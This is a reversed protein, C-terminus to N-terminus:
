LGKKEAYGRIIAVNQIWTNITDVALGILIVSAIESLIPSLNSLLLVTLAASTTLTMTMGTKFAGKVREPIPISQNKTVRSTLLIDTDVSYGVLMLLAAFSPLTLNINLIQMIALTEVIDFVASMIVAISPAYARFMIFVVISMLIFSAILGVQVQQFFSAGLAAGVSRISYKETSIGLKNLEALVKNTDADASLELSVEYGSIGRVEKIDIEPFTASLSSKLSKTDVPSQLNVSVVTGGKLELGRKAFDGTTIFSNVLIGICLFFVLVSIIVFAKLKTLGM